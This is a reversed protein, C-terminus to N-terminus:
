IEEIKRLFTNIDSLDKMVFDAGAKLLADYSYPGTAVGICKAGYPKACYVDRPTDGVIICEEFKVPKNLIRTYRETAIPLLKNRDEDDSGFAGSRFYQNLNFPELKIRAGKEINGTLLGISYNGNQLSLLELLERVGPKIHRNNNRIQISLNRIYTDVIKILIDKEYPLNYKAIGEKMIQIDTKGAMSIDIFANKISFLEEFTINLSRSGAGGTDILTGDIDFLLLKM